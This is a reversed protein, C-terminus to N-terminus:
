PNGGKADFRYGSGKVTQIVTMGGTASSLKKRLSYIHVRMVDSFPDAEENWIHELLEESSIIRDSNRVLYSFIAYEKLTLPVDKDQFQVRHLALDVSFGGQKLITPKSNFDRRLLARIRAKLEQFDFPKTLYDNAGLDLGQIRDDISRNASLIIVRVETDKERIQKLLNLGSEDPLNIDLVVLDYENISFLESADRGNYASDIAYGDKKLGKELADVLQVEDEVLLIRM